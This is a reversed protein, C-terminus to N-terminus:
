AVAPKRLSEPMLQNIFDAANQDNSFIETFLIDYAPTQMFEKSLEESKIFRRGDPSKEGYALLIIKEFNKMLQSDDKSNIIDKIMKDYGGAVSTQLMTIETQTLNFRFDETREVGDYDTYTITKKIM